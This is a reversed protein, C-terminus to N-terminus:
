PWEPDGIKIDILLGYTVKNDLLLLRQAQNCQKWTM